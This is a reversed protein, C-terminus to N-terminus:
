NLLLELLDTVNIKGAWYQLYDMDLNEKQMTFIGLADRWQRESIEGGLRYWELKALLIDEASAIVAQEEHAEILPKRIARQFQSKEFPRNHPIFIDIKFISERHLINFGGRQQIANRIMVEDIYFDSRLQKVFPKVHEISMDAIIDADQTTRVIGYLISAFSGGIFYPIDLKELVRVVIVAAQIPEPLM